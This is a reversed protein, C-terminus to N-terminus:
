PSPRSLVAEPTIVYLGDGTVRDEKRRVDRVIIWISGDAAVQYDEIRPRVSLRRSPVDLRRANEGDFLVLYLIQLVNGHCM